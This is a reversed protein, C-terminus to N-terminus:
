EKSSFRELLRQLLTRDIENTLRKGRVKSRHHFGHAKMYEAHKRKSTFYPRGDETYPTGGVGLLQDEQMQLPIHQPNVGMAESALPKEWAREVMPLTHDPADPTVEVVSDTAKDYRYKKNM